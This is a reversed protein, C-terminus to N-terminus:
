RLRGRRRARKRKRALGPAAEKPARAREMALSAFKAAQLWEHDSIEVLYRENKMVEILEDYRSAFADGSINQIHEIESADRGAALPFLCLMGDKSRYLSQPLYVSTYPSKDSILKEIIRPGLLIRASHAIKSEIVYSDIFAPGITEDADFYLDGFEVGGRVAFGNRFASGVLNSAVFCMNMLAFVFDDPGDDDKVGYRLVISDSVTAVSVDWTHDPRSALRVQPPHESSTGIDNKLRLLLDLASNEQDWTEQVRQSFGLLDLFAVIAKGKFAETM